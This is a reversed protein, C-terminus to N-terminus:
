RAEFRYGLLVQNIAKNQNAEEESFVSDTMYPKICDNNGGLQVKIYYQTINKKVFEDSLVTM